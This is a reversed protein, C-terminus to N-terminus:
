ATVAQMQECIEPSANIVVLDMELKEMELKLMILARQAEASVDAVGEMDFVLSTFGEATLRRLVLAILEEEPQILKGSLLFLAERGNVVYGTGM